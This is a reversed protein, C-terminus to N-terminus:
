PDDLFRFSECSSAAADMAAEDGGGGGVAHVSPLCLDDDTNLWKATEDDFCRHEFAGSWLMGCLLAFLVLFFFFM